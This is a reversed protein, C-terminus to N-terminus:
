GRHIMAEQIAQVVKSIYEKDRSMLPSSEGSSSTIRLHWKKLVLSLIFGGAFLATCVAGIQAVLDAGAVSGMLWMLAFLLGLILIAYNTAGRRVAVSTLNAMSYTTDGFVLRSNTVRIGRDDSYFTIESTSQTNMM